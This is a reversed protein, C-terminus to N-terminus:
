RDTLEEDVGGDALKYGFGPVTVILERGGPWVKSLRRRLLYVYQKVDKADAYPSGPWAADLIERESFVKGPESALLHLLAFQKPTLRVPRGSLTVSKQILDITLPGIEIPESLPAEGRAAQGLPLRRMKRLLAWALTGVLLLDVGFAIGSSVLITGRLRLVVSSRDIGVRVYSTPGNAADATAVVVDLYSTGSPLVSESVSLAAPESVVDLDLDQVAATREDILFEGDRSAQVFLASGVLLFRSAAQLMSVDPVDMWPGASSAFAQAYAASRERFTEDLLRGHTRVFLALALGSVLLVIGSSAVLTRLSTLTRDRAV